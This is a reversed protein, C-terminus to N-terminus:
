RKRGKLSMDNAWEKAAVYIPSCEPNYRNEEQYGLLEAYDEDIILMLSTDIIKKNTSVWTHSGDVCNRTGKLIPLIGGCIYCSSLSFSLQKSAVTCYGINYGDQFVLEFNDITRINQNQIKEWLENPFGEIKGKIVGQIIIDKFQQKEMILRKLEDFCKYDKKEDPILVQLLYDSEM